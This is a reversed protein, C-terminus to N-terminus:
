LAEMLVPLPPLEDLNRLGFHDLFARTTAYLAPKGPVDRHGVKRIWGREELLSNVIASSVAVGRIDEIEGRTIPQRYAILALTELFARSIRAPKEQFLRSVWPAFASKVQYRYGSAVECLEIGRMASVEQLDQLAKKLVSPEPREEPTFLHLLAEETLPHESALILAELLMLLDTYEM